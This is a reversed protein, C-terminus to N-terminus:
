PKSVYEYNLTVHTRLSCVFAFYFKTSCMLLVEKEKRKRDIVSRTFNQTYKVSRRFRYGELSFYYLLDSHYPFFRFRKTILESIEYVCNIYPNRKRSSCRHALSKTLSYCSCRTIKCMVM